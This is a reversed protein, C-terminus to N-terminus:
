RVPELNRPEDDVSGIGWIQRDSAPTSMSAPQAHTSDERCWRPVVSGCVVQVVVPIAEPTPSVLPAM